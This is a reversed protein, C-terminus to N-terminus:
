LVWAGALFMAALFTIIATGDSLLNTGLGNVKDGMMRQDNIMILM